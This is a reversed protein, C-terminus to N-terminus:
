RALAASAHATRVRADEGPHPRPAARPPHRHDGALPLYGWGRVPLLPVARRQRHRHHGAAARQGRNQTRRPRAAPPRSAPRRPSRASSRPSPTTSTPRRPSTGVWSTSAGTTRAAPWGGHAMRRQRHDRYQRSTWSGCRTPGPRSPPSRPRAAPRSSPANRSAPPRWCCGRTACCACCPPRPSGTGTTAACRGCRATVGRRTHWRTGVLPTASANAPGADAPRGPCPGPPPALHARARRDPFLVEHDAHGGRRPDGKLDAFPGPSGRRVDEV